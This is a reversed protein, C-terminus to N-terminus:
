IEIKVTSFVNELLHDKRPFKGNEAYLVGKAVHREVRERIAALKDKKLIKKRVIYKELKKIPCKRLWKELEEESRYGHKEDSHPGAHGLIRYTKCELLHPGKKNRIEKVLEKSRKYVKLVDNGDVRSGPLGMARYRSYINDKKQRVRIHSCIAYSNNECVFLVPLEKMVAFNVGEYFAGEDVAGDGLFCFTVSDSGKYKSAFAAGVSIPINGGVISSSGLYGIKKDFLHMSGGKGSSCGSEKGYLEAFFKNLDGNAGLYHGHSRHNSFIYDRKNLNACVGAAIAEQGHYLHIAMRIKGELYKVRVMEEALRIRLMSEYLAIIQKNTMSNGSM